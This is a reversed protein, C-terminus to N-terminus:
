VSVGWIPIQTESVTIYIAVTRCDRGAMDPRQWAREPRLTIGRCSKMLVHSRTIQSAALPTQSGPKRISAMEEPTKIDVELITIMLTVDAPAMLYFEYCFVETVFPPAAYGIRARTGYM